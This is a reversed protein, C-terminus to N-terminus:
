SKKNKKTEKSKKELNKMWDPKPPDVLITEPNNVDLVRLSMSTRSKEMPSLVVLEGEDVGGLLLARESDSDLVKVKRIDAKGKDDVVYVENDPRLGDRPLVIIEQYIKGSIEADVFLGPALPYGNESAGSGYPDVVEAIAFLARTQTDYTSATRMIKGSWYRRKGAIIANLEVDIASARNKAVYAIPLDIKSLDSDSLPLRVEVISTSFIRGLTRGPSVFQGIDSNKTKVRGTFPARVETRKLQLNASALEAEAAQLSALAQAQQPLRLALPSAKGIGLEQYDQKAIEGEAKERIVSQEAQAVQAQARIVSVKYDADEIRLLVEGKKIIGGEIFNPSVYVIKGGIEPVLDIETQPRAEGQTKVSLQVDDLVAYDALVALTNFARKKEEPKNNLKIIISGLFIFGIICLFPITYILSKKLFGAKSPKITNYEATM